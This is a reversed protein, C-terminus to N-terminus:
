MAGPPGRVFEQAWPAGGERRLGRGELVHPPPPPPGYPPYHRRHFHHQIGAAGARLGAELGPAVGGGEQRVVDLAPTPGPATELVSDVLRALPNRAAVAGDATCGQGGVLKNVLDM